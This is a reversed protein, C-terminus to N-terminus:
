NVTVCRLMPVMDVGHDFLADNGHSMQAVLVLHDQKGVKRRNTIDVPIVTAGWQKSGISPWDATQSKGEWANMFTQHLWVWEVEELHDHDWLNPPIWQSIEVTDEVVVIGLRIDPWVIMNEQPIIQVAHLGISGIIRDVRSESKDAWDLDVEGSVILHCGSFPVAPVNPAESCPIPVPQYRCPTDPINTVSGDIWRTPPRRGGPRRPRWKKRWAM